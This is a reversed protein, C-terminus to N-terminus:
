DTEHYEFQFCIYNTNKLNSSSNYTQAVSWPQLNGEKDLYFVQLDFQGDWVLPTTDEYVIQFLEKSVVEGANSHKTTGICFGHIYDYSVDYMNGTNKKSMENWDGIYTLTNKDSNLLNGMKVFLLRQQTNDIGSLAKSDLNHFVHVLKLFTLKIPRETRINTKVNLENGKVVINLIPM